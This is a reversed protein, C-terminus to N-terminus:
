ISDPLTGQRVLERISTRVPMDDISALAAARVLRGQAGDLLVGTDRSTAVAPDDLMNGWLFSTTSVGRDGAFFANIRPQLGGGVQWANVGAEALREADERAIDRVFVQVDRGARHADIIASTSRPHQIGKTIVLLDAGHGADLLDEIAHSIVRRDSLPDNFLVGYRGAADIADATAASGAGDLTADTVARAAHAADGGVVLSLETRARAKPIPALNGIWTEPSGTADTFHFTKAHQWSDPTAGYTVYRGGLGESAARMRTEFGGDPVRADALLHFRATGASHEIARITSEEAIQNLEMAVDGTATAIRDDLAALAATGGQHMARLAPGPLPAVSM